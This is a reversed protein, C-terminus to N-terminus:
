NEDGRSNLITLDGEEPQDKALVFVSLISHIGECKATEKYTEITVAPVANVFHAKSAATTAGIIERYSNSHLTDSV